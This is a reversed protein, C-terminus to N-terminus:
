GWWLYLEKFISHTDVIFPTSQILLGNVLGKKM